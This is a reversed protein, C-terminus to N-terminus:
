CVRAPIIGDRVRARHTMLNRASSLAEEPTEGWGLFDGEPTLVSYDQDELWYILQCGPLSETAWGAALRGNDVLYTLDFVGM